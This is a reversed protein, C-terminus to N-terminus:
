KQILKNLSFIKDGRHGKSVTHVFRTDRLIHKEFLDQRKMIGHNEALQLTGLAVITELQGAEHM